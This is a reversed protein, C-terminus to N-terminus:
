VPSWMAGGDTTHWLGPYSGVTVWFAAWGVEPDIFDLAGIFGAAISRMSSPRVPGWSAGGDRTLMLGGNLSLDFAETSSMAM